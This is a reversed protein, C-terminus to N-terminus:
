LVGDLSVADLLGRTLLYSGADWLNGITSRIAKSEGDLSPTDPTTLSAREAAHRTGAGLGGRDAHPSDCLILGICFAGIGSLSHRVRRFDVTPISIM